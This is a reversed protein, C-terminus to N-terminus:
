LKSVRSHLFPPNKRKESPSAHQRAPTPTHLRLCCKRGGLLAPRRDRACLDLTGSPGAQTAGRFGPFKEGHLFWLISQPSRSNYTCSVHRYCPVSAVHKHPGLVLAQSLGDEVCWLPVGRLIGWVVWCGM